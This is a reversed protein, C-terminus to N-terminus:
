RHALSPDESPAARVGRAILIWLTLSLLVCFGDVAIVSAGESQALAAFPSVDTALYGAIPVLLGTTATLGALLRLNRLGALAGIVHAAGFAVTMATTTPSIAWALVALFSAFPFSASAVVLLQSRWTRTRAARVWLGSISLVCMLLGFIAWLIKTTAGALTGFHLARVAEVTTAGASPKAGISGREELFEGTHGSYALLRGSLDWGPDALRVIAHADQEGWNKLEVQQLVLNTREIADACISSASAQGTAPPVEVPTQIARQVAEIDGGHSAFALAPLLVTTAFSFFAGTVIILVTFPLTWIGALTHVAGLLQRRAGRPRRFLARRPWHVYIGTFVLLLLMIGVLGVSLSGARGPLLFRVHLSVFFRSLVQGDLPAFIEAISGRRYDALAGGVPDVWVAEFVPDGDSSFLFLVADRERQFVRVSSRREADVRASATALWEDLREVSASMPPSHRDREAWAALDDVFIAVVGSFVLLLGLFGFALGVARHAEYLARRVGVERTM